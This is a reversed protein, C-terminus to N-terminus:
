SVNDVHLGGDGSGKDGRGSGESRGGLGGRLGSKLCELALNTGLRRKTEEIRKTHKSISVLFAEVAKSINLELVATDRLQSNKSMDGGCSSNTKRSVNVVVAGAEVGNRTSKSGERLNRRGSDELDEKENSEQLESDHLINSTLSLEGTVETITGKVEAPVGEVLLGLSGLASDLEVVSTCGLHTDKGKHDM